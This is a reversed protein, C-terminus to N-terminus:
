WELQFLYSEEKTRKALVDNILNYSNNTKVEDAIVGKNVRALYIFNNSGAVTRTKLELKIRYRDAGPSALNPSGPNSNDFLATDDTTTVIDETIQFGIDENPYQTYQSVFISQAKVFVFRGQVFFSGAAVHAKTALGSAGSSVTVVNPFNVTDGWATTNTM